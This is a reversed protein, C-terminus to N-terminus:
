KCPVSKLAVDAWIVAIWARPVGACPTGGEGRVNCRVDHRPVKRLGGDLRGPKQDATHRTTQLGIVTVCVCVGCAYWM